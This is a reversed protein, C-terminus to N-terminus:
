NTSNSTRNTITANVNLSSSGSSQSSAGSFSASGGVALNNDDQQGTLSRPSAVVSCENPDPMNGYEDKCKIFYKDGVKWPAYLSTKLQVNLYQMKLGEGINFNCSQTSYSCESDENTIIKLSTDRYVRTVIPANTDTFVNVNFSANAVNGGNDVCKIDYKWSGSSLDQPQSHAYSNTELMEVFDKTLSNNYFCKAKGEEAGDDTIVEITTKVISTSGTVTGNPKLEIINLPQSGKLNFKYSQIMMNNELDKCRFYFINDKRDEVSTLNTSCTYELNGNIDASNLSCAMSNNMSEYSQDQRSWKCQAPENVNVDLPVTDVNFRVYSGSVISTSEIVPPTTDPSKDVCFEIAYADVNVNGNADRCRLYYTFTGDNQFFPATLGDETKPSPLKDRFSHNIIYNNEEIWDKDVFNNMESYNVISLSWKCQAPENTSIGFMLPTFPQLCKDTGSKIIQVGLATPRTAKPPLPTYSLNSTLPEEWPTITPSTVDGRSVWVCQEKATKPNVIECAQGLSRCRYESCPRFPDKNCDDCHQGGLPPEWPLCSITLTQKETDKYMVIFIVATIVIFSGAFLGQGAGGKGGYLKAAWGGSNKTAISHVWSKALGAGIGGALAAISLSDTNGKSLGFMPGVLQAVGAVLGGWAVGQILSNGLGSWGTVGNGLLKGNIDYYEGSPLRGVAGSPKLLNGKFARTYWKGEAVGSLENGPSVGKAGIASGPAATASPGQQMLTGSSGKFLGVAGLALPAAAAAGGGSNGNSEEPNVQSNTVEEETQASVLSSNIIFSIAFISLVLTFIEFFVFSKRVGFRKKVM